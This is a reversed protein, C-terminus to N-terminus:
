IWISCSSRTPVALRCASPMPCPPTTSGTPLMKWKKSTTPETSLEVTVASLSPLHRELQGLKESVHTRIRDTIELNRGRINLEM